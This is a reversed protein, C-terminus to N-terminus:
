AIKDVFRYEDGLGNNIITTGESPTNNFKLSPKGIFLSHLEEKHLKNNDQEVVSIGFINNYCKYM